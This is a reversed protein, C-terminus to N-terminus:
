PAPQRNINAPPANTAGAALQATQHEDVLRVENRLWNVTRTNATVVVVMVALLALIVIVASGSESPQAPRHHEPALKM